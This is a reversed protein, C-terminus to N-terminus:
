PEKTPSPEQGGGGKLTYVEKSAKHEKKERNLGRQDVRASPALDSSSAM